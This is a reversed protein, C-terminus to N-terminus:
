KLEERFEKLEESIYDGADKLNFIEIVFKGIANAAGQMEKDSATAPFPKLTSVNNCAKSVKDAARKAALILTNIAKIADKRNGTTEGQKTRAILADAVTEDSIETTYLDTLAQYTTSDISGHEAIYAAVAIQLSDM